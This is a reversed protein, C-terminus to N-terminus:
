YIAGPGHFLNILNKGYFIGVNKYESHLKQHNGGYTFLILFDGAEWLESKLIKAIYKHNTSGQWNKLIM